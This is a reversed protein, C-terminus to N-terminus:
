QQLQKLWTDQLLCSYVRPVAAWRWAATISTCSKALCGCGLLLICIEKGSQLLLPSLYWQPSVLLTDPNPSPCSPSPNMQSMFVPSCTQPDWLDGSVRLMDGCCRQEWIWGMGKDKIGTNGIQPWLRKGTRGGNGDSGCCSGWLHRERINGEECGIGLPGSMCM